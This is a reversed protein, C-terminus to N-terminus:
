GHQYAQGLIIPQHDKGARVGIHALKEVVKTAVTGNESGQELGMGMSRKDRDGDTTRRHPPGDNEGAPGAGSEPGETRRLTRLLQEREGTLPRGGFIRDLAQDAQNRSLPDEDHETIGQNPRELLPEINRCFVEQDLGPRCGGPRGKHPCGDFRM